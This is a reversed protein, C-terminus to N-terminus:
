NAEIKLEIIYHDKGDSSVEGLNMMYFSYNYRGSYLLVTEGAVISDIIKQDYTAATINDKFIQMSREFDKTWNKRVLKMFQDDSDSFSYGFLLPDAELSHFVALAGIATLNNEESTHTLDTFDVDLSELTLNDKSVYGTGCPLHAYATTDRNAFNLTEDFVYTKIEKGFVDEILRINKYYNDLFSFVYMGKSSEHEAGDAETQTTNQSKAAETDGSGCASLTIAILMIALLSLVIRSPKRM